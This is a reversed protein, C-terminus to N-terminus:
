SQQPWQLEIGMYMILYEKIVNDWEKNEWLARGWESHLIFLAQFSDACHLSLPQQKCSEHCDNLFNSYTNQILQSTLFLFSSGTASAVTNGQLILKQWQRQWFIRHPVTKPSFPCFKEWTDVIQSCMMKRSIQSYPDVKEIVWYSVFHQAWHVTNKM